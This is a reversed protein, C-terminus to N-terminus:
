YLKQDQDQDQKLVINTDKLVGHLLPLDVLHKGELHIQGTVSNSNSSV